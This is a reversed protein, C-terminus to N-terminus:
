KTPYSTPSPLIGDDPRRGDPDNVKDLTEPLTTLLEELGKPLLSLLAALSPDTGRAKSESASPPQKETPENGVGRPPPGGEFVNAIEGHARVSSLVLDLIKRTATSFARTLPIEQEPRLKRGSAAAAALTTNLEAEVHKIAMLIPGQQELVAQSTLHVDEDKAAFAEQRIQALTNKRRYVDFAESAIANAPEAKTRPVTVPPPKTVANPDSYLLAVKRLLEETNNILTRLTQSCIPRPQLTPQWNRPPPPTPRASTNVVANAHNPMVTDAEEDAATTVGSRRYGM